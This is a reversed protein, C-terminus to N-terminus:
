MLHTLHHRELVSQDSYTLARASQIKVEHANNTGPHNFDHIIAAILSALLQFKSLRGVLSYSSLLLHTTHLVDTGHVSNHYFDMSDELQGYHAEMHLLFRRLTAKDIHCHKLLDYRRLSLACLAAQLAAMQRGIATADTPGGPRHVANLDAAACLAAVPILVVPVATAVGILLVGRQPTDGFVWPMCVLPVLLAVGVVWAIVVVLASTPVGGAALWADAACTACVVLSLAAYAPAEAGIREIRADSMQQSYDHEREETAFWLFVRHMEPRGISERREMSAISTGAESVFSNAELTFSATLEASRRQHPPSSPSPQSSSPAPEHSTGGNKLDGGPSPAVKLFTM